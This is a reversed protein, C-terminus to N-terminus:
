IMFINNTIILIYMIINNEMRNAIYLASNYHKNAKITDNYFLNNAKNIHYNLIDSIIKEIILTSIRDIVSIVNLLIFIIYNRYILYMIVYKGEDM